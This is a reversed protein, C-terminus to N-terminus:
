SCSAAEPRPQGPRWPSGKRAYPRVGESAQAMRELHWEQFMECYASREAPTTPLGRNTRARYRQALRRLGCAPSASDCEPLRCDLCPSM